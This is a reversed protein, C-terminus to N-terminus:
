MPPGHVPDMLLDMFLDILYDMHVLSVPTARPCPGHVLRRPLRRPLSYFSLSFTLSLMPSESGKPRRGHLSDILHNMHVLNVTTAWNWPSAWSTIRAFRTGTLCMPLM